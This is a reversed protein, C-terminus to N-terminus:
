SVKSENTPFVEIKAAAAAEVAVSTGNASMHQRSGISGPWIHVTCTQKNGYQKMRHTHM